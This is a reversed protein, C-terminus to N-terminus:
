LQPGALKTPTILEQGASTLHRDGQLTPERRDTSRIQCSTLRTNMLPFQSINILPIHRIAMLRRETRILLDPTAHHHKMLPRERRVPPRLSDHLLDERSADVNLAIEQDPGLVPPLDQHVNFGDVPEFSQPSFLHGCDRHELSKRCSPCTPNNGGELWLQICNYGFAHGCPLVTYAENEDDPPQIIALKKDCIQCDVQLLVDGLLDGDPSFYDLWNPTYHDVLSNEAM